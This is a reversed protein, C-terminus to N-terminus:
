VEMIDWMGEKVEEIVGVYSFNRDYGVKQFVTNAEDFYGVVHTIVNEGDQYIIFPHEYLPVFFICMNGGKRKSFVKKALLEANGMMDNGFNIFGTTSYLEPYMKQTLAKKKIDLGLEGYTFYLYNKGDKMAERNM